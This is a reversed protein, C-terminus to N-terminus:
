LSNVLDTLPRVMLMRSLQLVLLVVMPSLDLGGMPPVLRRAPDMVPASLQYLLPHIPSDGGPAVWSLLVKIFVVAMFIVLTLDILSVASLGVLRAPSIAAGVMSVIILLSVLKVLWALLVASLDLRGWNPIVKRLPVLPPNTIKVIFQCVPNFFNARVLQLLIRLLLIVIYFGFITDVLFVGADGVYGM